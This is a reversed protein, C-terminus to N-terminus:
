SISSIEGAMLEESSFISQSYGYNYFVNVPVVDEGMCNNGVTVVTQANLQPMLAIFFVFGLLFRFVKKM